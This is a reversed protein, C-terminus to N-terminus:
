VSKKEEKEGISDVGNGIVIGKPDSRHLIRVTQFDVNEKM